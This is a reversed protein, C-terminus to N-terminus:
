NLKMRCTGSSCCTPSRSSLAISRWSKLPIAAINWSAREGDIFTISSQCSATNMFAPDYTM